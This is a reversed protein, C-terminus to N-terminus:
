WSIFIRKHAALFNYLLNQFICTKSKLLLIEVEMLKINRPFCTLFIKNIFGGCHFTLTSIMIQGSSPRKLEPFPSECQGPEYSVVSGRTGLITKIMVLPPLGDNLRSVVSANEVLCKIQHCMGNLLVYFLVIKPLGYQPM